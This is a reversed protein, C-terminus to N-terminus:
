PNRRLYNAAQGLLGPNDQMFGLAKNCGQCLLGRIVGTVHNHDVCLCEDGRECIACRGDQTVLLADYEESTIGHNRRLNNARANERIKEPHAAQYKRQRARAKEPNAARYKRSSTRVKEPNAARYKRSSTRVKEPNAACYKRDYERAKKPDKRRM